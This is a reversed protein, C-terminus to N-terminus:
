CPAHLFVLNSNISLSALQLTWLLPNIIFYGRPVILFDVIPM